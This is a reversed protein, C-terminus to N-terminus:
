TSTARRSPTRPLGGASGEARGHRQVALLRPRDRAHAGRGRSCAARRGAGDLARHRGGPRVGRGRLHRRPDPAPRRSRRDPDDRLSGHRGHDRDQRGARAAGLVQEPHVESGDVAVTEGRQLRGFDRSTRSGSGARADRCRLPGSARARRVRLRAGEDPARGPLRADRLRRAPDRGQSSSSWSSRTASGASSGGSRTSCARPAGAARRDAAAGAAGHLDYTKLLGPLGLYHDAHFHTIYIDDVQVLGTSNIM